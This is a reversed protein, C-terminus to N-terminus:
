VSAVCRLAAPEPDLVTVTAAPTSSPCLNSGQGPFKWLSHACHFVVVAFVCLYFGFLFRYMLLFFKKFPFHPFFERLGGDETEQEAGRTAWSIATARRPAHLGGVWGM